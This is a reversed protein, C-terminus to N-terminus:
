KQKKNVALDFAALVKNQGELYRQTAFLDAWKLYDDFELDSTWRDFMDECNDKTIARGDIELLNIFITQLFEEFTKPILAM